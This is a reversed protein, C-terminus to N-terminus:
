IGAGHDFTESRAQAQVITSYPPVSRTLWVNGGISSGRGITVRGLVTAGAYIVVDDEVIPHRPQGKTLAGSQEVTFRKAGLTVAQYLRVREGIVATEGIVVGTGHDIFFSGGIQAGPHIDIGTASHSIESIIRAIIPAGLRYLQHALRHHYIARIGPYSLLIEETSQASPDGDYAARVDSLLNERVDPLGEAFDQLISTVAVDIAQDDQKQQAFSFRLEQQLLGKLSRLAKNLTHGVFYDIGDDAGDQGGGHRPFLAAYISKIIDAAVDPNPLERAYAVTSLAARARKRSARLQSVIQDLPVAHWDQQAGIAAPDHINM